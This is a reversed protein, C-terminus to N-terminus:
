IPNVFGENFAEVIECTNSIQQGESNLIEVTSDKNEIGIAHKIIKRTNKM